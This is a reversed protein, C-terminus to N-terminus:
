PPIMRSPNAQLPVELTPQSDLVNMTTLQPQRSVSTTLLLLRPLPLLDELDDLDTLNDLSDKFHNTIPVISRVFQEQYLGVHCSINKYIM